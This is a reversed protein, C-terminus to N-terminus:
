SKAVENLAAQKGAYVQHREQDITLIKAEQKAKAPRIAPADTRGIAVSQLLRKAAEDGAEAKTELVQLCYGKTDTKGFCLLPLYSRLAMPCADIAAQPVASKAFVSTGLEKQFGSFHKAEWPREPM